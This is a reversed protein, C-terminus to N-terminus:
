VLADEDLAGMDLSALENLADTLDVVEDAVPAAAPAAATPETPEARLVTDGGVLLDGDIHAGTVWARDKVTVRGAVRGGRVKAEGTVKAGDTIVAGHSIQASGLVRAVGTVTSATVHANGYVHARDSVVGGDGVRANDYVQAADRVQGDGFVRANGYVRADAALHATDDVHATDAVWGGISGDPNTHRSARVPGDGFDFKPREIVKTAAQQTTSRKSFM